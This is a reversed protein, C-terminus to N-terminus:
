AAAGRGEALALWGACNTLLLLPPQIRPPPFPCSHSDATVHKGLCFVPIMGDKGEEELIMRISVEELKQKVKDKYKKQLESLEQSNAKGLQRAM